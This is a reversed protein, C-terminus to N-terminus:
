AQQTTGHSSCCSASTLSIIRQLEALLQVLETPHPAASQNFEVNALQRIWGDFSVSPPFLLEYQDFVIKITKSNYM